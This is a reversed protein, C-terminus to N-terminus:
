MRDCYVHYYDLLGFKLPVSESAKLQKVSTLEDSVTSLSYDSPCWMEALHSETVQFRDVNKAYVEYWAHIVPDTLALLKHMESLIEQRKMRGKENYFNNNIIPGMVTEMHAEHRGPLGYKLLQQLRFSAEWSVNTDPDINGPWYKAIFFRMHELWTVADYLM